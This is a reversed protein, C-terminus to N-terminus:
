SSVPQRKWRNWFYAAVPWILILVCVWIAVWEMLWGALAKRYNVLIILLLGAVASASAGIFYGFARTSVIKKDNQRTNLWAISLSVIMAVVFIAIMAMAIM